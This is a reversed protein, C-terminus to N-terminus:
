PLGRRRDQEWEYELATIAPVEAPEPDAARARVEAVRKEVLKVLTTANVIFNYPASGIPEMPGVVQLDSFREIPVGLDGCMFVYHLMLGMAPFIEIVHSNRPAVATFLLGASQPSIILSATAFLRFKETVNLTELQVYRIGLASFEPLFSDENLVKRRDTGARTVYVMLAPDRTPLIGREQLARRFFARFFVVSDVDLRDHRGEILTAGYELTCAIRNEAEDVFVFYPELLKIGELQYARPGHGHERLWPMYVFVSEHARVHTRLGPLSLLFFHYILDDGGRDWLCVAHQALPSPAASAQLPPAAPRLVPVSIYAHLRARTASPHEAHLLAVAYLVVFLVVFKPWSLPDSM